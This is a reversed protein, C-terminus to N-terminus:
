ARLIKLNSKRFSSTHKKTHIYSISYNLSFTPLHKAKIELWHPLKIQKNSPAAMKKISHASAITWCHLSWVSLRENPRECQQVWRRQLAKCLFLSREFASANNFAGWTFQTAQSTLNVCTYLSWSEPTTTKRTIPLRSTVHKTESRYSKFPHM